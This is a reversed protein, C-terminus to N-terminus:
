REGSGRAQHGNGGSCRKGSSNKKGPLLDLTSAIEFLRDRAMALEVQVAYDHEALPTLYAIRRVWYKKEIELLQRPAAQTIM